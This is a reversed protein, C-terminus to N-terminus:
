CIHYLMVESEILTQRRKQAPTMGIERHVHENNYWEVGAEVADIFQKWSPLKGQAQRQKETLETAGKRMAKDLSIVGISVKRVTERDANTGHYTDFQRAIRLAM